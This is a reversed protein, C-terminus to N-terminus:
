ATVKRFLTPASAMLKPEVISVVALVSSNDSASSSRIVAPVSIRPLEVLPTIVTVASRVRDAAVFMCSTLPPSTTRLPPWIWVAPPARSSSGPAEGAATRGVLAPTSTEALVSEKALSRAIWISPVVASVSNVCSFTMPLTSRVPTSRIKDPM